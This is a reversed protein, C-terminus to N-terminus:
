QPTFDFEAVADNVQLVRPGFVMGRAAVSGIYTDGSPVSSFSYYGFANTIATLINGRSDAITVRAGRVGSRSANLVRGAVSVDAATPALTGNSGIGWDSFTSIGTVTATNTVANNTSPVPSLIGGSQKFVQYNAESGNVDADLYTFSVDATIGFGTLSWFRSVSTAKQLGALFDDTVSARLSGTGNVNSTTVPSYHTEDGVPYAFIENTAGCYDKRVGGVVYNSSSAGSLTGGCNVWVLGVHSIGNLTVNRGAPIVANVAGNPLGNSWIAPNDINGDSTATTAFSLLSVANSAARGVILLNRATDFSLTTIGNTVKGVVSNGNGVTGDTIPGAMTRTGDGLAIAGADTISGNPNDWKTSWALYNGNTLTVIGHDPIVDGSTSGVLSNSATVPGSIGTSGNGWTLAGVDTTPGAPNDWGLTSVVYNGNSLATVAGGTGVGDSATGGVLSNSTTVLGTTGNAGNGWTVAGVDIVPGAPNDWFRSQVVYNGNTLPTVGDFGV